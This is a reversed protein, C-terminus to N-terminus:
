RSGGASAGNRTEGHHVLNLRRATDPVPDIPAINVRCLDTAMSLRRFFAGSPITIVCGKQPLKGGSRAVVHGFHLQATEGILEVLKGRANLAESERGLERRRTVVPAKGNAAV